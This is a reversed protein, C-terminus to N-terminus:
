GGRRVRLKDLNSEVPRSEGNATQALSHTIAADLTAREHDDLADGKDDVVLDLVTGNPLDTPEDVILRGDRVIARVSM